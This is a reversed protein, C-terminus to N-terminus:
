RGGSLRKISEADAIVKYIIDAPKKGGREILGCADLKNLYPVITGKTKNLADALEVLKLGEGGLEIMKVLTEKEMYTLHLWAKDLTSRQVNNAAAVIMGKNIMVDKNNLSEQIAEGAIELMYRPVGNAYELLVNIADMDFPHYLSKMNKKDIRASSLKKELCLMLEEKSFPTIDMVLPFRDTFAGMNEHMEKYTGPLTCLFFIINKAQDFIYNNFLPAIQSIGPLNDTEDIAVIVPKPQMQDILETWKEFVTKPHVSKKHIYESYTKGGPVDMFEEATKLTAALLDQIFKQGSNPVNPIYITKLGYNQAKKMCINVFSTKGLGKEGIVLYSCFKKTGLNIDREFRKLEDTREVYEKIKTCPDPTLPNFSLNYHEGLFDKGTQINPVDQTNTM